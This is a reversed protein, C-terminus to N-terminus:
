INLVSGAEITVPDSGNLTIIPATTDVVNVIRVIQIAPNGSTDFLDYTVNYSGLTNTDVNDNINIFATLDGDYNDSATAGADTYSTGAEVTEPDNGLLTIVPATTDVVDVTRTVQIASNNSNDAVDYTVQYTGITNTNIASTDTIISATLDGDVDDLATAGDDSYVSGVEVTTPDSGNLTIVPATTDQVIVTRNVQTASNGSSDNVDYYVFYIGLTGASVQSTDININASIDGDVNDLATAGSETYGSGLGLEIYLPNSGNLTIAPPTTDPAAIVNVTRNVQTANNGSSDNVDYTILYTGLTNTDAPNLTNISASLDGEFSDLATAGADTYTDGLTVSEPDSGLLTIVPATTDQVIVTRNAQAAPNGSSDNVDYTVSYIDVANTNVPNTTLINTTIDGDADDNATAGADVYSTGAEITEPNDGLITINPPTTDPVGTEILEGLEAGISIGTITSTGSLTINGSALPLAVTPRVGINQFTLINLVAPTPGSPDSTDTITLTIQSTTISDPSFTGSTAVNNINRASPGGGSARTVLITVTASTDFEFGAPATLIITGNGIEASASETLVPGTLNTYTGGVTTSPIATGGTALILTAANVSILSILFVLMITIKKNM